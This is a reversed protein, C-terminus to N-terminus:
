HVQPLAKVIGCCGCSQNLHWGSVRNVDARGRVSRTVPLTERSTSTTHPTCEPPASIDYSSTSISSMCHLSSMCAYVYWHGQPSRNWIVRTRRCRREQLAPRNLRAAARRIRKALPREALSGSKCVASRLLLQAGALVDRVAGAAAEEYSDDIVQHASSHQLMKRQRDPENATHLKCAGQTSQERGRECASKASLGGGAACRGGPPAGATSTAQASASHQLLATRSSTESSSGKDSAAGTHRNNAGAFKVSCRHTRCAKRPVKSYRM